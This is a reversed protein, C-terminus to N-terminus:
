RFSFVAECKENEYAVSEAVDVFGARNLYFM